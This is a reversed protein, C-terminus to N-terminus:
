ARGRHEIAGDVIRAEEGVDLLDQDRREV